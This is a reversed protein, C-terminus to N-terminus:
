KSPNTLRANYNQKYKNFAQDMENEFEPGYKDNEYTRSTSIIENKM